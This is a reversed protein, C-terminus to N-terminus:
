GRLLDQTSGAVRFMTGGEHRPPLGTPLVIWLQRARGAMERLSAEAMGAIRTSHLKQVRSGDRKSTLWRTVQTVLLM